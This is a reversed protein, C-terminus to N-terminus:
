LAIDRAQLLTKFATWEDPLMRLTYGQGAEELTVTDKSVYFTKEGAAVTIVYGKFAPEDGEKM